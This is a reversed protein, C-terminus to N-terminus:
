NAENTLELVHDAGYEDTWKTIGRIKLDRINRRPLAMSELLKDISEVNVNNVHKIPKKIKGHSITLSLCFM